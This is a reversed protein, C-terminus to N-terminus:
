RSTELSALSGAGAPRPVTKGRAYLPRPCGVNSPHRSEAKPMQGVRRQGERGTMTVTGAACERRRTGAQAQRLFLRRESRRPAM